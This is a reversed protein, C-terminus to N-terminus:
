AIVEGALRECAKCADCGPVYKILASYYVSEGVKVTSPIKGKAFLYKCVFHSLVLTVFESQAM